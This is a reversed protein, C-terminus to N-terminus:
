GQPNSVNSFGWGTMDQARAGAEVDIAQIGLSPWPAWGLTATRTSKFGSAPGM